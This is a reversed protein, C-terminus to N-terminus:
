EVMQKIKWITCMSKNLNFTTPYAIFKSSKETVNSVNRKHFTIDKLFIAVKEGVNKLFFWICIICECM